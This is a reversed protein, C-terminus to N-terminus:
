YGKPIINQKYKMFYVGIVLAIIEALPYVLWAGHLGYIRTLIFLLSIEIAFSKLFTLFSSIKANGTSQFFTSICINYAAAAFTFFLYRNAVVAMEILKANDKNFLMVIDEVFILGVVTFIVGLIVGTKVAMHFSKYVRDYKNAGYNFSIIPQVAQGIGFFVMYTLNTVYMMISFASVALAGGLNILVRNFFLSVVGFSLEGLFSPFGIQCTKIIDNSSFKFDSNKLRLKGKKKTFHTILMACSVIQAIGTAIAAGKLGMQMPFIFIYNLVANVIASSVMSYMSTKPDADNRVFVNLGMALAFFPGFYILYRGYEVTYGIIVDDAGLFRCIKEPNILFLIQAIIGICIIIIVSQTFVNKAEHEKGEGFKMSVLTSGGVGVMMVAAMFLSLVPMIMNVAGLAEAGVGNGVFIGDLVGHISKVLMGTVSALLYHYFLKKIPDNRLDIEKSM